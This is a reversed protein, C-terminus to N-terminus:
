KRNKSLAMCLFGLGLGLFMGGPIQNTFFGVGMGILIGAPIFFASKDTKQKKDAM